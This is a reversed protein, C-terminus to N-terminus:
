NENQLQNVYQKIDGLLSHIETIKNDLYDKDFTNTEEIIEAWIGDKFIEIETELDNDFAYLGNVDEYYTFENFDIEIINNTDLCRVKKNSYRKKAENILAESVEEETALRWNKFDKGYGYFLPSNREDIFRSTNETEDCDFGYYKIEDKENIEAINILDNHIKHIYWKGVELKTEFAEPIFEQLLKKAHKKEALQNIQEQTLEFTKM